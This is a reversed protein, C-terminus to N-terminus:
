PKQKLSEWLFHSRESQSGPNPGGDAVLPTSRPGSRPTTSGGSATSRVRARAASAAGAAANARAQSPTAPARSSPASAPSSRRGLALAVQAPTAGPPGHEAVLAAFERAAAVGTAYDVGSFTEGVDFASGDRNYTRHDDAAFTTHEDYRGRCCGPRSRFGPSSGVGAEAAAPLVQTSRSSGSRTSSSRSAPWPRPPRDREAGPRLDRRQRRLGRDRGRRGLHRPRRVDRRRRDIASRRATCSSWTWPTSASTARALPRDLGPITGPHLEGPGARRPPGDQHRRHRREPHRLFRGIIQESRGDGYVDATDFFTM